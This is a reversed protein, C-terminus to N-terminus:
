SSSLQNPGHRNLIEIIEAETAAPIMVKVQSNAQDFYVKEQPIGSAILDDMANEAKDASDFTGTVTKTM